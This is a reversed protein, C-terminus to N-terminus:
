LRQSSTRILLRVLITSLTTIVRPRTSGTVMKDTRSSVIRHLVNEDNFWRAKYVVVDGETLGGYNESALVLDGKSISPEMSGSVVYLTRVGVINLSVVPVCVTAIM